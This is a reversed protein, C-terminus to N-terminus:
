NVRYRGACLYVFHIHVFLCVLSYYVCNFKRIGSCRKDEEYQWLTLTLEIRPYCINRNDSRAVSHLRARIGHCALFMITFAVTEALPRWEYKGRYLRRIKQISKSSAVCLTSM